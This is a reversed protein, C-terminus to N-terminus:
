PPYRSRDKRRGDHGAPSGQRDTRFCREAEVRRLYRDRSCPLARRGDPRLETIHVNEPEMKRNRTGSESLEGIHKLWPAKCEFLELCGFGFLLTASNSM